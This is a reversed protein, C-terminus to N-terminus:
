GGLTAVQERTFHRMNVKRVGGLYRIEGTGHLITGDSVFMLVHEPKVSGCYSCEMGGVKNPRWEDIAASGGRDPCVFTAGM